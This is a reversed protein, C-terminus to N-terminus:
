KAEQKLSVAGQELAALLFWMFGFWLMTTVQYAVFLCVLGIGLAFVLTRQSSVAAHHWARFIKYVFVGFWALLLTTGVIGTDHLAMLILNSIWGETRATTTYKQGFSNPGNGLLPKQLFDDWANKYSVWRSTLTQGELLRKAVNLDSEPGTSPDFEPDGTQTGRPMGKAMWEACPARQALGPAGPMNMLGRSIEQSPVYVALILLGAAGAWKLKQTLNMGRAFLVIFALGFLLALFAGRSANLALAGLMVALAIGLARRWSAFENSVFLVAGVLIVVMLTSGFVNPEWLTGYMTLSFNCLIGGPGRVGLPYEDVGLNIGFPYLFWSAIGYLAELVGFVLLMKLVFRFAIARATGTMLARAAFYVVVALVMRAWYSVSDRADPPFLFASVLAVGLYAILLADTWLFVIRARKQWVLWALIGLAFLIAFHENHPRFPIAEYRYRNTVVGVFLFLLAIGAAGTQQVDRRLSQFIGVIM